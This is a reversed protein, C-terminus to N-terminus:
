RARMKLKRSAKLLRIDEKLKKIRAKAAVASSEMMALETELIRLSEQYLSESHEKFQRLISPNSPAVGASRSPKRSKPM